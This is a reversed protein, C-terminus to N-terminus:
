RRGGRFFRELGPWRGTLVLVGALIAVVFWLAPLVKRSAHFVPIM